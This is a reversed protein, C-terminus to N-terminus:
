RVPLAYERRVSSGVRSIDTGYVHLSVATALGDNRVRHIDGPPAFGSVTGAPNRNRAAVDLHDGRLAFVEEYEAGALVATVCWSLHDHIVTEQGPLWVMMTVSFSGGPEVYLLHTQYGSPNGALEAPGLLSSDPLDQRLASAVRSATDQWCGRAAVAERISAALSPPCGGIVSRLSQPQCQSQAAASM